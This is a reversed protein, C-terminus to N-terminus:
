RNSVRSVRSEASDVIRAFKRYFILSVAEANDTIGM